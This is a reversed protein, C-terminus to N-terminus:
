FLSYRLGVRATVNANGPEKNRRAYISDSALAFSISTDIAAMETLYYKCGLRFIGVFAARTGGDWSAKYADPHAYRGGQGVGMDDSFSVVVAGLDAGFYPVFPTDFELNQEIVGFLGFMSYDNMIAMQTRGGLMVGNRIYYGMGFDGNFNTGYENIFDLNLSGNVEISGEEIRYASSVPAYALIAFLAAVLTFRTKTM